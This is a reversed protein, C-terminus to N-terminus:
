KREEEKEKERGYWVVLDDKPRRSRGGGPALGEGAHGRRVHQRRGARDRHVGSGQMM